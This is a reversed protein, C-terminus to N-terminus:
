LAKRATAFLTLPRERPGDFELNIDIFGSRQLLYELAAPTARWFDPENHIVIDWPWSLVIIGGLMLIEYMNDLATWPEKVHELLETAVITNFNRSELDEVTQPSMIDLVIDVGSGAMIDIGVYGEEPFLKRVTGNIDRSGVELVPSKLNLASVQKEVWAM